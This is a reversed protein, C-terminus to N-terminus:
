RCTPDKDKNKSCYEMRSRLTDQHIRMEEATQVAPREPAAARLGEGKRRRGWAMDSLRQKFTREDMKSLEEAKLPEISATGTQAKHSPRLEQMKTRVDEPIRHGDKTYLPIQDGGFSPGWKKWGFLAAGILVVLVILRTVESEILGNENRILIVM